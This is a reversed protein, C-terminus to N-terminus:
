SFERCFANAVKDDFKVIIILLTLQCTLVTKTEQFKSAYNQHLFQM